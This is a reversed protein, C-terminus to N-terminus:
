LQIVDVRSQEFSTLNSFYMALYGSPEDVTLKSTRGMAFNGMLNSSNSVGKAITSSSFRLGISTQRAPLATSSTCHCGSGGCMLHFSSPDLPEISSIADLPPLSAPKEECISM